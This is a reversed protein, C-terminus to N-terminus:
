QPEPIAQEDITAPNVQHRSLSGRADRGRMFVRTAPLQKVPEPRPVYGAPRALPRAKARHKPHAQILM